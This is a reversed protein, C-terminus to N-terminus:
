APARERDVAAVVGAEILADIEQEGYGFEGLIAITDEGLRPAARHYQAPTASLKVPMGVTRVTGAIPHDQEVVMGRALTQPHSLAQAISHVPGAPVGAADFIDLWEQAGCKGKSILRRVRDVLIEAGAGPLSDMGAAKLAALVDHHSMKEKKCIHAVEPPGLTHLKLKPYLEKLKRFLETYFGLGLDPHHGGQLLLQDGGWRFTEEIKRKYTDIDTIYADAHGPIRYFNCFKCNAICVNTTNVNRDIQWTVRGHPVAMRRLENAVHMLETLPADEFLVVGEEIDLFEKRLARDYLKSLNM